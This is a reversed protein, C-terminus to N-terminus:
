KKLADEDGLLPFPSSCALMEDRGAGWTHSGHLATATVQSILAISRPHGARSLM